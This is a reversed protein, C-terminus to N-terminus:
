AIGRRRKYREFWAKPDEGGLEEGADVRRKFEAVEAKLESDQELERAKLHLQLQRRLTHLEDDLASLREGLEELFAQDDQPEGMVSGTLLETGM